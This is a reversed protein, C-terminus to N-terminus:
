AGCKLIEETKVDMAALVKKRDKDNTAEHAQCCLEAVKRHAGNKGDYRPLSLHKFINSVQIQITHSEVYERVLSSNLVACVFYASEPDNFEAFYVKHDPVYVRKGILPIKTDTVVVAEFTTAQEAWAVKYPAFTYAGSNYIAYYPAGRQRLRYTSRDTLTDEFAKFYRETLKLQALAASAAAYDGNQIGKNPVLIYLEEEIHLHCASFDGAGKLLPYLLNPEIWIRRAPGIDNRGAEPRTEVQVLRQAKNTDVIRVMFVGNLDTTVGKRGAIWDSEGQIAAM